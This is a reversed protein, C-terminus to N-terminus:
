GIKGILSQCNKVCKQFVEENPNLRNIHVNQQKSFLDLATIIIKGLRTRDTASSGLSNEVLQQIHYLLTGRPCDINGTIRRVFEKYHAKYLPAGLLVAGLFYKKSCLVRSQRANEIDLFYNYLKSDYYDLLAKSAKPTQGTALFNVM